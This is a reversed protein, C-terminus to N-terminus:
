AVDGEAPERKKGTLMAKVLNERHRFSALVVGCLHMCVMAIVAYACYKHTIQVWDVGFYRDTTMMWGTFATVSIMALLAVIMAGGAPNHGIYRAERGTLIDRLYGLIRAPHRCFQSFRAYRTGFLGWLLRVGVLAAAAYGFENHIVGRSTSTFWALGISAALSWHFLRVVPDWVGVAATRRGAGQSTSIDLDTRM